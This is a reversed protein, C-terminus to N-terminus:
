YTKFVKSKLDREFEAPWASDHGARYTRTTFATRSDLTTPVYTVTVTGTRPAVGATPFEDQKEKLAFDGISLGAELIVREFDQRESDTILVM